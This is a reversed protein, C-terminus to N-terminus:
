TNITIASKQIKSHKGVPAVPRMGTNANGIKSIALGRSIAGDYKWTFINEILWIM